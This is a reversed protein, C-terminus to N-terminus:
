VQVNTCSFCQKAVAICALARQKCRCCNAAPHVFGHVSGHCACAVNAAVCRFYFCSANRRGYLGGKCGAKHYFPPHMCHVVKALCMKEQSHIKDACRACFIGGVLGAAAVVRVVWWGRAFWGCGGVGSAGVLGARVFYANKM